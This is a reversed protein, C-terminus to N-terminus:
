HEQPMKQYREDLEKQNSEINDIHKMLEPLVRIATNSKMYQEGVKRFIKQNNNSGLNRDRNEYLREHVVAALEIDVTLLNHDPLHSSDTLM